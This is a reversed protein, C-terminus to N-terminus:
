RERPASTEIREAAERVTRGLTKVQRYTRVTLLGLFLLGGLFVSLGFTWVYGV